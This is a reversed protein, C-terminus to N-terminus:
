RDEETVKSVASNDVVDNDTGDKNEENINTSMDENINTYMDENIKSVASTDVDNINAPINLESKPSFQGPLAFLIIGVILITVISFNKRLTNKLKEKNM